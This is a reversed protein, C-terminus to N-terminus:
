GAHVSVLERKQSFRRLRGVRRVAVFLSNYATETLRRVNTLQHLRGESRRRRSKRAGQNLCLCESRRLWPCSGGRSEKGCRAAGSNTVAFWKWIKRHPGPG